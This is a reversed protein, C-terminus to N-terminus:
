IVGQVSLSKLRATCSKAADRESKKRRTRSDETEEKVENEKQTIMLPIVSDVHRKVVESNSGKKVEVSTVENLENQVVKTVIGMPFNTRKQLPEKLLILDGQKLKTHNVPVYKGKESTTLKMMNPLFEENYIKSLYTRAKLLKTYEKSISLDSRDPTWDDNGINDQLYPIVNLSVLERGYLLIEPSIPLPLEYENSSDRLTEQFAIPRRNCLHIVQRVIFSFDEEPLVLKKILGFLTKKVMKVCYEVCGGLWSAGKYYQEFKPTKMNNEKLFIKTEVDRLFDTIMRAGAVIQTGLDSFIRSPTGHTFIQLQFGRLFNKLSLDTCIELHIARSWLCTFILLYKKVRVNNSDFVYFPGIYDLYLDRFPINCPELRFDRFVNENLRISRANLRKCSICMKVIKKVFSFACPIWFKTRLESLVPYYGAHALKFHIERVILTSLISSKSLLIPLNLNGDKWRRFKSKVRLIGCNDKFINLQSVLLPIDKLRTSKSHFYRVCDGFHLIQDRKVVNCFAKDKIEELTDIKTNNFKLPNKNKIKIKLKNIYSFVYYTVNLVKSFSSSRNVDYGVFSSVEEVSTHCLDESFDRTLDPNPVTVRINDSQRMEDLISDSLGTYFCTKNLKNYSFPRTVADAPNQNGACFEFTIPIQECLRAIKDLRNTVFVSLKNLKEFKISHAKIWSISILSDTFLKLENIKIPNVCVSGSLESYTDLLIEVGLTVGQMELSPISKSQMNRSILRNKALLFSMKKTQENYIYVVVGLIHKSSDTFAYLSYCDDRSGVFRPFRVDPVSDIQHCINSWERSLELSIETDWGLMKDNQLRQMFLRARNMLPLNFGCIDFNEAISKLITRKTRAEKDLRLSNTFLTDDSVDWKLGFLKNIPEGNEGTITAIHEALKIDNTVYQQIKFGYPNFINDLQEYSWKLDVSNNSAIAGNDMYILDWISRKLEKLEVSDGETNVMLIYYLGIMLIFPSCKLGFPLRLFKYAVIEFNERHVNKFWLFCLKQQDVDPVSIQLFAKVLDFVLIKKDFRLQILSSGLKRNLCPGSLMATNHSINNNKKETLNSLYVIRCKTTDRKLKFIPMHAMFSCPVSDKFENLNSIKEIIGLELQESIVEDMLKLHEPTKLLKVRTSSLIKCALNFNKNLFYSTKYNWLLPIELRGSDTRRISDLTVDILERNRVNLRDDENDSTEYNLIESCKQDLISEDSDVLLKDCDIEPVTFLGANCMFAEYVETPTINTKGVINQSLSAKENDGVTVSTLIKQMTQELNSIRNHIQDSETVSTKCHVGFPVKDLNRILCNADGMLLVGLPTNSFLCDNDKGFTVQNEPLLHGFNTGLIFEINMIEDSLVSLQSDALKHGSEKFSKVIKNLNNVKLKTNIKPLVIAPIVHLNNNINLEFQIVKTDYVQTGNVGNINVKIDRLINLNDRGVVSENIFCATCGSDKLCRIISGKKSTVTFTPLITSNSLGSNVITNCTITMHHVNSSQSEKRDKVTKNMCLFSFHNPSDCFFCNRKFKFKCINANHYLGACRFCAKLVRLRDTKDKATKYVNCKHIPHDAKKEVSCLICPKFSSYEGSIKPDPNVNVAFGTVNKGKAFERSKSIAIYREAAEFIHEQIRELSPKNTNCISILLSKLDETLGSWVFYQVIIDVNIKLNNVSNIITRMNSIFTYIDSHSNLKLKSLRDIVEFKQCIPSAFAKCLLKKAESYSQVDSNLSRILKLPEGSVQKELLFFKEYESISYKSVISEFKLFFEELSESEGHSYEPLPLSPLKIQNKPFSSDTSVSSSPRLLRVARTIKTQYVECQDLEIQYTDEDVSGLWMIQQIQDDFKDLRVKMTNLEVLKDSIEGATYDFLKVLLKNCFETIKKRLFKRNNKVFELQNNDNSSGGVAGELSPGPMDVNPSESDSM